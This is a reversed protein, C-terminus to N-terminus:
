LESSRVAKRSRTRRMWEPVVLVGACLYLFHTAMRWLLMTMAPALPSPATDFWPALFLDLLWEAVGSSGPTPSVLLFVWMVLQRAVIHLGELEMLPAVLMGMVAVLTFFRATWSMWTALMAGTWLASSLQRMEVSSNRLDEAYRLLPRQWRRLWTLAALQRLVRHTATPALLLGLAIVVALGLMLGWSAWFVGWGFQNALADPRIASGFVALLVPVALVYFLQDLLVTSFVVATSRGATMGQRHLAWIAVGGGGVIGPTIASAFEWVVTTEVAQRWSLERDSLWRLRLVYGFDRLFVMGIVAALARHWHPLFVAADIAAWGGQEELAGRLMWGVVALCIGLPLITRVPGLSPTPDNHM